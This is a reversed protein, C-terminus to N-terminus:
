KGRVYKKFNNLEEESCLFSSDFIEESGKITRVLKGEFENFASRLAIYFSLLDKNNHSRNALDIIYKSFSNVKELLHLNANLLFFLEKIKKETKEM